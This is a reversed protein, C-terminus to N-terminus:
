NKIDSVKRFRQTTTMSQPYTSIIDNLKHLTDTSEDSKMEKKFWELPYQSVSGNCQGEYFTNTNSSSIDVEKEKIEDNITQANLFIKYM